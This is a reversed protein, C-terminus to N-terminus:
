SNKEEKWAADYHAKLEPDRPPQYPSSFFDDLVGTHRSKKADEEGKIAACEKDYDKNAM